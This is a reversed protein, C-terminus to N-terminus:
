GATPVLEPTVPCGHHAAVDTLHRAPVTEVELSAAVGIVRRRKPTHSLPLALAVVAAHQARVGTPHLEIAGWLAVVGGIFDPTAYGFRPCPRYWAHIGCVCDHGPPPDPHGPAVGCRATNVGRRWRFDVFPSWLADDHLRWQRYGVLPEILDPAELAALSM